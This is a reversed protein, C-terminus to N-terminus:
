PTFDIVIVGSYSSFDDTSSLYVRDTDMWCTLNAKGSGDNTNTQFGIPITQSNSGPDILSGRLDFVRTFTSIGHGISIQNNNPGSAVELVVRYIPNGLFTIGQDVPTTDYNV